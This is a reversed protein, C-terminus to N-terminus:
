ASNFRACNWQSDPLTTSQRIDHLSTAFLVTDEPNLRPLHKWAQDLSALSITSAPAAPIIRAIM